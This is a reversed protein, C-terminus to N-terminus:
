PLMYVRYFRQLSNGLGNTATATSATAIVDPELDTWNTQSLSAKYQVRYTQGAIADWRLSAIGNSIAIPYIHFPALATGVIVTFTNTAMLRPTVPDYPNYNTAVTSILNTSPGGAPLWTIVGASSIQAGSPAALFGYGAPVSHINPNTATNTVTLLVNPNVQQVPIVPLVPAQNVEQVMVTFSNTATLQPHLLDYPNANTVVTTIINTSPSSTQAPVWTIIGNATIAMGPPASLLGYGTIVSYVNLNTATNTVTLLTLEDVTRTGILPLTPAVNVDTVIVNFSNTASLSPVAGNRVVTVFTNTSPSQTQPPTWTIVGNADILANTPTPAILSYTLSSLPAGASSATNTVSLTTFESISQDTQAPLIPPSNTCCAHGTIAITDIWWGLYAGDIDTGCRWRLQITQGVASDPLAISTTIFGQSDGSWVNRGSLPNGYGESAPVVQSNYGGSVFSGGAAVIDLFDNTGIKIELVGGDYANTGPGMELSYNNRFNLQPSSMTVAIPPSVLDSLGIDAPDPVFVANPATDAIVSESVWPSEAGTASTTWGAPLAPAIVEDFNEFYNTSIPGLVFSATVTGVNLTGDQLQLKATITGGCVGSATFTFPQSVAAGGAVVVGYTQPSSPEVVGNSAMLTAVLNTTSRLGTNKLAFLVTVLEGPDIANNTPLCGEAILSTSDLVLISANRVIVTFSNTASLQPHLSDYPNSNTVVTTVTNTSPSNTQAPTWTIIGSATIAMGAPASLLGYGTIVSHINPNTASNTVALLTLENVTQIPVTPLVPAQNVEEVVVTFSNTALLQPHLMDYPNSNTVVTTVTNTSPSNTQAPTWTIVGNTTISMGAPASLLRYGTIVSHINPNTASNTVTLLTLENVTQIPVTPLVPAQNVEDVVVTFSNTAMLTPFFLDYPNTNIAIAVISNTSPSQTQTPTWRIVGNTTITVGTPTPPYVLGYGTTVSHINPETTANTVSLLTLENITQTPISSLVPAQNVERVIVVFSNSATLQPNLTDYPDSNTVVTTITNTSPSNTQAPTWTIVGNASIALGSPPNILGYGITLSHINTEIATNTVTLSTLENVFQTSIVPLAPAQNVEQVIVSFINTATLAPNGNDSVITTFINTSPSQTQLPAWSIVGNTSIQANSPGSLTYTLTRAPVSSDSATNTVLLQSFETITQGAISPLVPPGNWGVIVDVWYNAGRYSNTPFASGGNNYLGNGGLQGDAPAYLPFETVSNSTFYHTDAAYYSSPSYYSVIYETNSSIAVSNSLAQYQWGSGTENSFTVSALLSGTATWLNGIHPAVNSAGKYFRIGSIYGNMAAEFKLGFETGGPPVNSDIVNPMPPVVSSSWFSLALQNVTAFSSSVNGGLLNGALDTVGGAGGQVIVTYSAAYGLPNVPTLVSTLTFSNYTLSAPVANGSADHLTITNSNITLPNMPKSFVISVSTQQPIGSAGSAPTISMVTPLFTDPVFSVQYSGSLATFFVYQIGKVTRLFFSIPGSNYTVASVTYGAPIPVMGQLGVANTSAQVAFTEINNSWSVAQFSSSGRADLWTLMQLSSIIPVGRASASATIADSGPSDALDTHMNAVFAGFYGEPGIANDLLTNITYSYSQGSEDTMQSPAQYADLVSGDSTVFRMPIGSGTFLGPQDNVWTPPYYYYTVDFRVGFQLSVEAATSFDSWAVCHIRHTTPPPLSPYTSAFESFQTAFFNSLTGRTWDACGTNLHPCMEFGLSHYYAAQSDTLNTSPYLYSSSRITQWDAYSANSPTMALYQDFRGATGGRAHDDGTMVVAAQYAHPFYWFRPLLRRSSNMSLVMNALLRQQEDAQPITINNFDVWDPEPDFSAAGYYLDDPRAVSLGDRHQGAWAPNGQRTYVVSSALDFTFAAAQGGNTGVNCLTVAPSALATQANSYLTALSTAAGLTYCDAAGHFQITKSVIGAGPVTNTNVLLYGQPLTTGADVLGLLGALQKDPRMAILQGGDSVWNSLTNVQSSTLVVQSLIAVDYQSLMSDNVSSIDALSFENLGEALLIEAYYQSVPNRADSIILIPGGPGAGYPAAALTTFSWSFSDAMLNGSADAVGGIGGQITATYTTAPSLCVSPTLTATYTADNFSLVSPIINGSSDSLTFTDADISADTMAKSFTVTLATGVHIGTAGADPSFACVIPPVPNSSSGSDFTVDVWYNAANYTSTPFGSAGYNYVGNGGSESTSLALLPYSSTESNFYGSDGAYGGSPTFYSVVYTTNSSIAVPAPLPQFQWGSATENSFTVSALNTGNINWLDGIHTGTNLAGKYFRIGTIYGDIASQFKLGVEVASPDAISPNAPVTSAPWLSASLPSDTQAQAVLGSCLAFLLLAVIRNGPTNRLLKM